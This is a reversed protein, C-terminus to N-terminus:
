LPGIRTDSHLADLQIMSCIVLAPDRVELAYELYRIGEEKHGSDRLNALRMAFM